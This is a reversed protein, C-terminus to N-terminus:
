ASGNERFSKLYPGYGEEGMWFELMNSVGRATITAGSLGNISHPDEEPSGAAGKIVEIAVDGSEDYVKRGPWVSKWAPNDVEGGLGPTEKHKYYTIGRVTNGDSSLALYGYLTGWLGKGSIPLVLMDVNGNEEVQYIQVQKPIESLQAANGPVKMTPADDPDFTAPDVGEAYTGTELDIVKPTITQFLEEIRERSVAEGTKIIRGAQLVSKQQDLQENVTQRQKLGVAAAALTISCALCLGLSFLYTYVTSFQQM